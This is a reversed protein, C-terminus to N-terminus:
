DDRPWAVRAFRRRAALCSAVVSAGVAGLQWPLRSADPGLRVAGDIGIAVWFLTFATWAAAYVLARGRWRRALEPVVRRGLADEPLEARWVARGHRYRDIHDFQREWLRRWALDDFALPPPATM